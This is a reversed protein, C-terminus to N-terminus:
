KLFYYRYPILCAIGLLSLAMVVNRAAYTATDDTLCNEATRQDSFHLEYDTAAPIIASGGCIASLM